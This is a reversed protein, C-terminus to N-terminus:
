YMGYSFCWCCCCPSSGLFRGIMGILVARLGELQAVLWWNLLAARCNKLKSAGRRWSATLYCVLPLGSTNCCLSQALLQDRDWVRVCAPRKWSTVPPWVKKKRKKKRLQSGKFVSLVRVPSTLGRGKHKTQSLRQWDASECDASDRQQALELSVCLSEAHHHIEFFFFFTEFAVSNWVQTFWSAAYIM